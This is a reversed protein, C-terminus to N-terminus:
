WITQYNFKKPHNKKEKVTCQIVHIIIEERKCVHFAATPVREVEEVLEHERQSVLAETTPRGITALRCLVGDLACAMVFITSASFFPPSLTAIVTLFNILPLSLSLSVSLCVSLCVSLPSLSLSLHCSFPISRYTYM